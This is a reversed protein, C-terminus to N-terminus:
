LMLSQTMSHEECTLGSVMDDLSLNERMSSHRQYTNGKAAVNFDKVLVHCAGRRSWTGEIVCVFSAAVPSSNM